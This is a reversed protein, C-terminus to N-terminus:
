NLTLISSLISCIYKVNEELINMGSPLNIGFPSIAYSVYNHKSAQRAQELNHYAPLLSLPYFFLRCDINNKNFVEMVQEKKLGLKPNLITTVM